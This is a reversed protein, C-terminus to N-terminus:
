YAVSTGSRSVIKQVTRGAESGSIPIRILINNVVNIRNTERKSEIVQLSRAMRATDARDADLARNAHQLATVTRANAQAAINSFNSFAGYVKPDYTLTAGGVERTVAQQTGSNRLLMPILDFMILPAAIGAVLNALGIAAGTGAAATVAGGPGAPGGPLGGGGGTVTAAKINVVGANIGLVGKILGKGLEGVIGGLAGGTLKNLGWGTLVATQVWAPMSTFVDLVAKAGTGALKMADGISSWPLKRAVELLSDLGAALGQGFQRINALTQPKALETSLINAVKEIVPLFGEALAKRADESV